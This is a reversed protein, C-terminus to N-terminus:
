GGGRADNREIPVIILSYFAATVAGGALAYLAAKIAERITM